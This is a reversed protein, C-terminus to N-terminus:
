QSSITILLLGFELTEGPFFSTMTIVLYFFGLHLIYGLAWKVQSLLAWKEFIAKSVRIAHSYQYLWIKYPLKLDDFINGRVPFADVDSTVYLDNERVYPLNFALMRQFFLM